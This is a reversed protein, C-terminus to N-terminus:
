FKLPTAQWHELNKSVEPYVQLQKHYTALKEEMNKLLKEEAVKTIDVLKQAFSLTEHGRSKEFDELGDSIAQHFLHADRLLSVPVSLSENSNGMTEWVFWNLKPPTYGHIARIKGEDNLVNNKTTYSKILNNNDKVEHYLATLTYYRSEMATISHFEIASKLGESTALYVGFVTSLVVAFQGIWFYSNDKQAFYRRTVIFFQGLRFM